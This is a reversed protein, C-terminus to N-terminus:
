DDITEASALARDVAAEVHLATVDFAPLPYLDAAALLPLETCGLIVAEAGRAKLEGAMGVLHQRSPETFNGLTLEDIIIRHLADRQPKEPVLVDLGARNRLRQIFFDKEMTFRTALLGVRSYGRASIAIATPDALHLLPLDVTAEVRDAVMHGTVSTIMAFAAGAAKLSRAADVVRDGVIDWRDEAAARNLEDFDLTHLVSRANHHGGLRRHAERNLLRYYLASSEWSMGGILGILGADRGAM